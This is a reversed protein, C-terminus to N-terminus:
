DNVCGGFIRVFDDLTTVVYADRVNRQRRKIVLVGASAGANEKEAALEDMWAALEHKKAAKCEVVFPKGDPGTLGYVDGVDKSGHRAARAVRGDGLADKLYNVVATEWATGKATM